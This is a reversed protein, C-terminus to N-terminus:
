LVVIQLVEFLDLGIRIASSLSAVEHTSHSVMESTSQGQEPRPTPAVVPASPHNDGFHPPALVGAWLEKTEAKYIDSSQIESKMAM